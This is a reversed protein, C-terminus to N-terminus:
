IESGVRLVSPGSVNMGEWALSAALVLPPKHTPHNALDTSDGYFSIGDDARTRVIVTGKGNQGDVYIFLAPSTADTSQPLVCPEAPSQGPSLFVYPAVDAPQVQMQALSQFPGVGSSPLNQGVESQTGLTACASVALLSPLALSVRRRM